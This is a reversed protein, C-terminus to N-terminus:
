LVECNIDVRDSLGDDVLVPEYLTGNGYIYICCRMNKDQVKELKDILEQVTM